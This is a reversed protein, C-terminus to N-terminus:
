LYTHEVGYEKLTTQFFDKLETLDATGAEGALISPTAM